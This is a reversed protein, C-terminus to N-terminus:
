GAPTPTPSWGTAPSCAARRRRPHARHGRGPRRRSQAPLPSLGRARYGAVRAPWRKPRNRRSRAISASTTATAAAWCCASRSGPRRASSTGAPWTSARSSTPTGRSPPTWAAISSASNRAPGRRAPAAGTRRHRRARRQRLGAPLVARAPLSRRLRHPRRRDRGRVITSDFVTVSKGGSWKYSGEHLPLEVRYAAIRRIKMPQDMKRPPVPM